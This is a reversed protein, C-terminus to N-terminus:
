QETRGRYKWRIWLKGILWSFLMLVPVLIWNTQPMGALGMLGYTLSLMAAIGFGIAIGEIQIRRQLENLKSFANGLSVILLFGPILPVFPLLSHLSQAIRHDLLYITGLLIVFFFGGALALKILVERPYEM